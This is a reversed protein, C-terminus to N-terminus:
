EEPDIVEIIVARWFGQPDYDVKYTLGMAKIAEFVEDVLDSLQPYSAFKIEIPEGDDGVVDLKRLYQLVSQIMRGDNKTGYVVKYERDLHLNKYEGQTVKYGVVLMPRGSKSERLELEDIAVTYEGAPIEKAKGGNGNGKMEAAAAEVAAVIAANDVALNAFKSM